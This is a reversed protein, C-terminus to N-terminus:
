HLTLRNSIYLSRPSSVLTYELWCREAPQGVGVEVYYGMAFEAAPRGKGCVDVGSSM